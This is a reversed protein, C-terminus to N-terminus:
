YPFNQIHLEGPEGPGNHVESFFIKEDQTVKEDASYVLVINLDGGNEEIYKLTKIMESIKM